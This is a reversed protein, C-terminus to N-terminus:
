RIISGTDRGFQIARGLALLRTQGGIDSQIEFTEGLVKLGDVVIDLDSTPEANMADRIARADDMRKFNAVDEYAPDPWLNLRMLWTNHSNVYRIAYKPLTM